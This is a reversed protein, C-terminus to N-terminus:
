WGGLRYLEVRTLERTNNEELLTDSLDTFGVVIKCAKKSSLCLCILGM